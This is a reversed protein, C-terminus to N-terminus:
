RWCYLSQQAYGRQKTTAHCKLVLERKGSLPPFLVLGSQLANDCMKRSAYQLQFLIQIQLYELVSWDIWRIRCLAPCSNMCFGPIFSFLLMINYQRLVYFLIFVCPFFSLELFWQLTKSLLFNYLPINTECNKARTITQHGWRVEDSRM